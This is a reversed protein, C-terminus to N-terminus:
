WKRESKSKSKSKRPRAAWTREALQAQYRREDVYLAGISGTVIFPLSLPVLIPSMLGLGGGVLSGFATYSAIYSMESSFSDFPRRPCSAPYNSLGASAGIGGGIVLGIGTLM